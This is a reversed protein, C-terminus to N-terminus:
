RASQRPEALAAEVPLRLLKRSYRRLLNSGRKVIHLFALSPPFTPEDEKGLAPFSLTSLFFRLGDRAAERAQFFYGTSEYGDPKRDLPHLLQRWTQRALCPVVADRRVASWIREPLPAQLLQRVLYLGLDLLRRSRTRIARRRLTEWDLDPNTRLVEALDCIWGLGTWCHKVGHVALLLVLDEPAPQLVSRGLLRHTVLRPWIETLRLPFSFDRPTFATHVEVLTGNERHEFPMQGYIRLYAEEWASSLRLQLRYGSELLLARMRPYDVPRVLLDLDFFVRLGLDGYATLALTPGKFPVVRLGQQGCRALLQALAATLALNNAAIPRCEAQLQHLVRAPVLEAHGQLHRLLLPAIAHYDSLELLRDWDDLNGLAATLRAQDLPTLHVRAATLLVEELPRNM